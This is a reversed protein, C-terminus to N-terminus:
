LRIILNNTNLTNIYEFSRAISNVMRIGINAFPDDPQHIDIWKQPDFAKCNDRIRLVIEGDKIILRMDVSHKRGDSFGYRIINGAMEEVCLSVYFSRKDEIGRAACFQRVRESMDVVHDMGTASYEMRDKEPVDFDSPLFLLDDFCRPLGKIYQAAMIYYVPLMLIKGLPLAIWIGDTGLFRSLLLAIAIVMVFENLITIINARVSDRVGQLFKMFVQGITHFPMSVAFCRVSTVAVAMTEPDDHIYMSVVPRAAVFLLAAVVSSMIFGEILSTKMLAKASSRDEEGVVVGAILLVTAGIGTGLAGVFNNMNSQVSLAAVAVAGGLAILINNLALTRLTNCTRSVATPLGVMIMERLMKFDMGSYRLRYAATKKKFHLLLIAANVIYSVSTALAMGFLGGEFVFVNVFDGIINVVTMAVVAIMLHGRDSDLQVIPQLSVGLMMAPIGPVLGKLYAVTEGQLHASNGTAGLLSAVPHAFLLFVLMLVLSFAMDAVCSIALARNAEDAKGQTMKEACVNQVGSAMIGGIAPIVIFAPMALGYAAIADVGLYKGIVMGDVVMGITATITAIVMVLLSRRFMHRIIKVGQNM